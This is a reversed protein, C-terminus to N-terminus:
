LEEQLNRKYDYVMLLIFTLNFSFNVIANDFFMPIFLLIIYAFNRSMIVYIRRLFNLFMLLGVYGFEVLVKLFDNHPDTYMYDYPM